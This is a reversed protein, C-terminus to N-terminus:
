AYNSVLTVVAVVLKSLSHTMTSYQVYGTIVSNDEGNIHVYDTGVM